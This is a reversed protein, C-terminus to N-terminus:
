GPETANAQSSTGRGEKLHRRATKRTAIIIALIEKGEALLSEIRTRKTLGADAAFDIWFVSEDAEEEVLGIKSVFDARSRAICAARYNAASSTSSRTLQYGVTSGAPGKPFSAVLKLSRLAFDRIRQKMEEPTM